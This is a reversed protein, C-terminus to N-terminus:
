MAATVQYAVYKIGRDSYSITEVKFGFKRLVNTLIKGDIFLLYYIVKDQEKRILATLDKVYKRVDNSAHLYGAKTLETELNKTTLPLLM